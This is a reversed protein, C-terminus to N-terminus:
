SVRYIDYTGRSGSLSFDATVHQGVELDTPRKDDRYRAYTTLYISREDVLGMVGSSIFSGDEGRRPNGDAPDWIIFRPRNTPLATM